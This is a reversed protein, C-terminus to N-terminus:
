NMTPDGKTCERPSVTKNVTIGSNEYVNQLIAPQGSGINVRLTWTNAAVFVQDATSRGQGSSSYFDTFIGDGTMTNASRSWVGGATIKPGSTTTVTEKVTPVESGFFKRGRQDVVQYRIVRTHSSAAGTGLTWFCDLVVNLATPIKDETEAGGGGGAAAAPAAFYLFRWLFCYGDEAPLFAFSCNIGREWPFVRTTITFPWVEYNLVFGAIWTQALSTAGGAIWEDLLWVYLGKPDVNNAPDGEVYVYRNFSQPSGGRAGKDSPDASLFRGAASGYYRQDAYDLGTTGDRFYTGFKNKENATSTQEEGYPFYRISTGGFSRVSGLRDMVVAQGQSRIMTGAYFLSESNRKLYLSPGSVIPQYAGWREGMISYFYIEEAGGPLKKWVRKNDPRYSYQDSSATTLRNLADYAVGSQGPISTMNGNADYGFGSTTIRNTAGDVNISLTPASGKTVVKSLLNGFGDYGFSQGWEPGTTTAAILRQLSDYQYTVEEGSVWDKQQTIKGNNQSASFRYEMDMITGGGGGERVTTMRTLQFLTNYTHTQLYYVDQPASAGKTELYRTQTVNGAPGYLVDKVWDVPRQSDNDTLKNPRGMSDFAYSYLVGTTVQWSGSGNDDWSPYKVSTVQGETNYTYVADLDRQMSSKIVSLRQKEVKGASSYSFAEHYTYGGACASGGWAVMAVRAAANQTFPVPKGSDDPNTDYYATVGQCPDATVGNPYVTIGTPRQLSDYGYSVKQGKADIKTAM